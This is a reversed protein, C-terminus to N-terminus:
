ARRPICGERGEGGLGDHKYLRLLKDNKKKKEVHGNLHPVHPVRLETDQVCRRAPRVYEPMTRCLSRVFMKFM